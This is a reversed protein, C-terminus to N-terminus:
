LQSCYPTDTALNQIPSGEELFSQELDEKFTEFTLLMSYLEASVQQYFVSQDSFSADFVFKDYAESEDKQILENADECRDQIEDMPPSVGALEYMSIIANCEGDALTEDTITNSGGPLPFSRLNWLLNKLNEVDKAPTDEINDGPDLDIPRKVTYVNLDLDVYNGANKCTADEFYNMPIKSPVLSHSMTEDMVEKIYKLHCAICNDTKEYDASTVSKESQTVIDVTICFFDGCPLSRTWDGKTGSLAALTDGFEDLAHESDKPVVKGTSGNESNEGTDGSAANGAGSDGGTSGSTGASEEFANVADALGSDALCTYPSVADEALVVEEDSNLTGESALSVSDGSSRDPYVIQDRFLVKHISDLDSLLDIDASDSLDNNMFIESALAEYSLKYNERQLDFEKQYADLLYLYEDKAADISLLTAADSSNVVTPTVYKNCYESLISKSTESLPMESFLDTCEKAAAEKDAKETAAEEETTQSASNMLEEQHYIIQQIDGNLVIDELDNQSYTTWKALEKIAAKRPAELVNKYMFLYLNNFPLEDTGAVLKDFDNIEDTDSMKVDSADFLAELIKDQSGLAYVSVTMGMAASVIIGAIVFLAHKMQM